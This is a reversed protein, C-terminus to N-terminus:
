VSEPLHIDPPLFLQDTDGGARLGRVDRDMQAILERCLKELPTDIVMTVHGEALGARSDGTLASVM